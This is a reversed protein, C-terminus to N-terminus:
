EDSRLSQELEDEARAAALRILDGPEWRLQDIIHLALSRRGCDLAAAHADVPPHQDLLRARHLLDGLVRQGADTGFCERYDRALAEKADALIRQEAPSLDARM